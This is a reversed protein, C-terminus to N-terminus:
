YMSLQRYVNFNNITSFRHSYILVNCSGRVSRSASCLPFLNWPAISSTVDEQACQQLGLITTTTTTTTTTVICLARDEGCGYGQGCDSCCCAADQSYVAGGDKNGGQLWNYVVESLGFLQGGREPDTPSRYSSWFGASGQVCCSSYTEM